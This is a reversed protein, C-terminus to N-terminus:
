NKSTNTPAFHRNRAWARKRKRVMVLNFIGRALWGIGISVTAIAIQLTLEGPTM